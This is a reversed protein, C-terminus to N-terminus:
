TGVSELFARPSINEFKISMKCRLVSNSVLNSSLNLPRLRPIGVVPLVEEELGFEVTSIEELAEFELLLEGSGLEELLPEKRAFEVSKGVELTSEGEKPELM